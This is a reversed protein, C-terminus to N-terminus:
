VRFASPLSDPICQMRQSFITLGVQDYGFLLFDTGAIFAVALNLANGKLGFFPKGGM